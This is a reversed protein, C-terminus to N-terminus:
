AEVFQHRLVLPDQLKSYHVSGLLDYHGTISDYITYRMGHRQYVHSADYLGQRIAVDTFPGPGTVRLAAPKGVGDRALDYASLRAKVEDIVAALFQCGQEAYFFWQVLEGRSARCASGVYSLVGKTVHPPWRAVVPSPYRALDDLSTVCSAKIDLYVGGLEFVAAYRVLDAIMAGYRQNLIDVDFGAARILELSGRTDFFVYKWGPNQEQLRGMNARMEAPLTALSPATQVINKNM